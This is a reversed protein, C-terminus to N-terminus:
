IRIIRRTKVKHKGKVSGTTLFIEREPTYEARYPHDKSARTCFYMMIILTCFFMMLFVGIVFGGVAAIMGSSLIPLRITDRSSKSQYVDRSLPSDELFVEEEEQPFFTGSPFHGSQFGKSRLNDRHTKVPISTSASPAATTTSLSPSTSPSATTPTFTLVIAGNGGPPQLTAYVGVKGVGVGPIYDSRTSGGPMTETSNTGIVGPLYTIDYAPNCGGIYSSGGIVHLYVNM